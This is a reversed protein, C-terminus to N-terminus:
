KTHNKCLINKCIRGSNIDTSVKFEKARGCYGCFLQNNEIEDAYKKMANIATTVFISDYLQGDDDIASDFEKLIEEPQKM